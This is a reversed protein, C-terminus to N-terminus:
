QKKLYLQAGSPPDKQWTGDPMISFGQDHGKKAILYLRGSGTHWAVPDFVKLGPDICGGSLSAAYQGGKRAAKLTLDISCVPKGKDRAVGYLGALSQPTVNPAVSAPPVPAASGAGARPAPTAAPAAATRTQEPAPARANGLPKLTLEGGDVAATYGPGSAERDFSVLTKGASDVFTVTQGSLTWGAAQTLLPLASRCAPPAGLQNGHLGTEAGLRVRCSRSTKPNSLEWAGTMVAARDSSQAMAPSGALLLGALAVGCAWRGGGTWSGMRM